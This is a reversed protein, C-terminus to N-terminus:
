TGLYLQAEEAQKQALYATLVVIQNAPYGAAIVNELATAVAEAEAVNYASFGRRGEMGSSKSVDVFAVRCEPNPWPFGPIAPLAQDDAANM